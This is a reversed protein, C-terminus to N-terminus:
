SSFRRLNVEHQRRRPQAVQKAVNSCVLEIAAINRTKGGQTQPLFFVQFRMTALCTRVDTTFRKVDSNLENQM